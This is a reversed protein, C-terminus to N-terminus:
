SGLAVGESTGRGPVVSGSALVLARVSAGNLEVIADGVHLSAREAPPGRAVFDVQPLWVSAVCHDTREFGPLRCICRTIDALFFTKM